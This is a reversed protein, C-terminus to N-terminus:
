MVSRASGDLSSTLIVLAELSWTEGAILPLMTAQSSLRPAGASGRLM